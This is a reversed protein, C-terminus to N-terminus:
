VDPNKPWHGSFKLVAEVNKSDKLKERAQNQSAESVPTVGVWLVPGTTHEKIQNKKKQM